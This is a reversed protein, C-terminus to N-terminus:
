LDMEDAIWHDVGEHGVQVFEVRLLRTGLVPQGAAVPQRGQMTRAVDVIRLVGGLQDLHKMRDGILNLHDHRQM